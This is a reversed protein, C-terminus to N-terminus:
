NFGIQFSRWAKKVSAVTAIFNFAEILHLAPLHESVALHGSILTVSGFFLGSGLYAFGGVIAQQNPNLEGYFQRTANIM